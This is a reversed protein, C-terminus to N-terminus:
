YCGAARRLERSVQARLAKPALAEVQAGWRQVWGKMESFNALEFQVETSEGGEGEKLM